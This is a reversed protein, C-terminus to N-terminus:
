PLSMYTIDSEREDLIKRSLESTRRITRKWFKAAEGLRPEAADGLRTALDAYEADTIETIEDGVAEQIRPRLTSWMDWVVKRDYWGPIRGERSMELSTNSEPPLNFEELLTCVQWSTLGRSPFLRGLMLTSSGRAHFHATPRRSALGRLVATYHAMWSCAHSCTLLGPNQTIFPIGQVRKLRGFISVYEAVTTRVHESVDVDDKVGEMLEPPPILSRGFHGTPDPTTVIYGLLDGDHLADLVEMPNVTSPLGGTKFFLLRDTRIKSLQHRHPVSTAAESRYDIDFYDLEILVHSASRFSRLSNRFAMTTEAAAKRFVPEEHEALFSILDDEFGDDLSVLIGNRDDGSTFAFVEHCASGTGLGDDLTM